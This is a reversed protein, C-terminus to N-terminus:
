FNEDSIDQHKVNIGLISYISTEAISSAQNGIREIASLISRIDTLKLITEKINEEVNIEKIAKSLVKKYLGDIHEDNKIVAFALENNKNEFSLIADSIMKSSIDMFRNIIKLSNKYVEDHRIKDAKTAIKVIYDGVRELNNIMRYCALLNRLDGAVPNYLVISKIIQKELRNEYNDLKYENDLIQTKISYNKTDTNLYEKLLDLQVLVINSYEEFMIDTKELAIDKKTAM